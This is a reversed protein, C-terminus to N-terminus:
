YVGLTIFVQANSGINECVMRLNRLNIIGKLIREGNASIRHGDTAAPDIGTYRYRIAESYVSIHAYDKGHIEADTFGFDELSMPVDGVVGDLDIVARATALTM